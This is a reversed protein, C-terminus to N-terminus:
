PHSLPVTFPLLAFSVSPTFKSAKSVTSCPAAHSPSVGRARSFFMRRFFIGATQMLALTKRIWGRETNIEFPAFSHIGTPWKMKRPQARQGSGAAANQACQGASAKETQGTQLPTPRRRASRRVQLQRCTNAAAYNTAQLQNSIGRRFPFDAYIRCSVVADIKNRPM